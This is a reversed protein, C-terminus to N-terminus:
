LPFPIYNVYRTYYDEENKITDKRILQENGFKDIEYVSRFDGSNVISAFEKLSDGKIRLFVTSNGGSLIFSDICDLEKNYSINPYEESNEMSTLNKDKSDYIFLRRIINGGRMSWASNFAIDNLKDNNFDSIEPELDSHSDCNYLYQNKFGWYEVKRDNLEKTYFKVIVYVDEFVRHKILEIKCKGKEGINLSDTFTEIIETSVCSKHTLMSNPTSKTDDTACSIMFILLLFLIPKM